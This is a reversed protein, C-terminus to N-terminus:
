FHIGLLFSAEDKRLLFNNSSGWRTYRVEPTFAIRNVRYRLGAAFVAGVAVDARSDNKFSFTRSVGSADVTTEKIRQHVGVARVAWGTGIFPQWSARSRFYYKGILPFQWSNGRLRDNFFTLGPGATGPPIILQFTHNNGIRQYLAAAEIAFGAPLRVEISPGVIYPRSEDSSNTTRDLLPVGGTVGFSVLQAQCIQGPAMM